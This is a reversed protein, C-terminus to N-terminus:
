QVVQVRFISTSDKSVNTVVLRCPTMYCFVQNKMFTSDTEASTRANNIVRSYLHIQTHKTQPLLPHLLHCTNQRGISNPKVHHASCLHMEAYHSVGSDYECLQKCVDRAACCCIAFVFVVLVVKYARICNNSVTYLTVGEKDNPYKTFFSV